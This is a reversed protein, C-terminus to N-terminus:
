EIGEQKISGPESPNIRGNASDGSGTSRIDKPISSNSEKNVESAM